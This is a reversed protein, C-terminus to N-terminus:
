RFVLGASLPSMEITMLSSQSDSKPLTSPTSPTNPTSPHMWHSSRTQRLQGPDQQEIEAAEEDVRYAIRAMLVMNLQNPNLSDTSFTPLRLFGPLSLAM